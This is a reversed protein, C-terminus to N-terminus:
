FFILNYNYTEKGSLNYHREKLTLLNAVAPRPDFKTTGTCNIAIYMENNVRDRSYCSQKNTKLISNCSIAREPGCSNLTITPYAQILKAFM